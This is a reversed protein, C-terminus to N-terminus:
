QQQTAQDVERADAVQSWHAHLPFGCCYALRFRHSLAPRCCSCQKRDRAYATCTTWFAFFRRPFHLSCCAQACCACASCATAPADLSALLNVPRSSCAATSAASALAARAKTCSSLACTRRHKGHHHADRRLSFCTGKSAKRRGSSGFAQQIQGYRGGGLFSVACARRQRAGTGPEGSACTLASGSAHLLLRSRCCGGCKMAGSGAESRWAVRLAVGQVQLGPRGIVEGAGAAGGFRPDGLERTGVDPPVARRPLAGQGGIRLTCHCLYLHTAIAHLRRM